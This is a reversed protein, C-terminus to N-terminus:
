ICWSCSSTFEVRYIKRTWTPNGSASSASPTIDSSKRPWNRPNFNPNLQSLNPTFKPNLQSLNPNSNPNLQSLNPTFNPTGILDIHTLVRQVLSSNLIKISQEFRTESQVVTGDEFNSLVIGGKNQQVATILDPNIRDLERKREIVYDARLVFIYYKDRYVSVLKNQKLNFLTKSFSGRAHASTRWSLYTANLYAKDENRKLEEANLGSIYSFFNRAVLRLRDRITPPMIELKL